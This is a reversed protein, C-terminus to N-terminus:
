RAATRIFRRSNTATGTRATHAHADLRMSTRFTISLRNSVDHKSNQIRRLRVHQGNMSSAGNYDAILCELGHRPTLAAAAPM